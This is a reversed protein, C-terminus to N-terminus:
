VNATTIPGSNRLTVDSTVPSDVNISIDNGSVYANGTQKKAKGAASYDIEWDFNAGALLTELGSAGVHTPHEPDYQLTLTVSGPDVFGSRFERYSGESRLHTFDIEEVSRGGISINAVNAVEVMGGGTDVSFKVGKGVFGTSAPM